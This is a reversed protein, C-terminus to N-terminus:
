DSSCVDSSWDRTSRTHRRRSSFFFGEAVRLQGRGAGVVPGRAHVDDVLGLELAVVGADEVVADGLVLREMGQRVRGRAAAIETAGSTPHSHLAPATGGIPAARPILNGEGSVAVDVNAPTEAISCVERTGEVGRDLIM